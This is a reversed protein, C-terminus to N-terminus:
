HFCMIVEYKTNPHLKDIRNQIRRTSNVEPRIPGSTTGGGQWHVEYIQGESAEFSVEIEEPSLPVATVKGVSEPASLCFM